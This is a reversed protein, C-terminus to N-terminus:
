TESQTVQMWRCLETSSLWHSNCSVQHLLISKLTSRLSQFLPSFSFLLMEVCVIERLQSKKNSTRSKVCCTVTYTFIYTYINFKNVWPASLLECSSTWLHGHMWPDFQFKSINTKLLPSLQLVRLFVERLLTSFWCVWGEYTGPGPISGLVCQHLALARVM